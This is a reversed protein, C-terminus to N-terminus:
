AKVGKIWKGIKAKQTQADSVYNAVGYGVTKGDLYTQTVIPRNSLNNITKLYESNDTSDLSSLISSGIEVLSKLENVVSKSNQESDLNASISMAQRQAFMDNITSFGAQVKSLDLVPTITPSDYDSNLIDPIASLPDAIASLATETMSIGSKEVRDSFDSIGKALGLDIYKGSEMMVKSPSEIGATTNVASMVDKTLSTAAIIATTKSDTIGKALGSVLYVGANKMAEYKDRIKNVVTNALLNTLIKLAAKATEDNLGATFKNTCAIGADKFKTLNDDTSFEIIATTILSNVAEKTSDESNTFEDLFATIANAAATQMSTVFSEVGTADVASTSSVWETLKGLADVTSGVASSDVAALNQLLNPLRSAQNIVLMITSLSEEDVGGLDTLATKMSSAFTTMNTSVAPVDGIENVIKAAEALTSIHDALKGSASLKTTDIGEVKSYYSNVGDGLKTMNDKFSDMSELASVSGIYEKNTDVTQLIGIIANISDANEVEGITSTATYFATLGEGFPKMKEGFKDINDFNGGFWGGDISTIHEGIDILPGLSSCVASIKWPQEIGSVATAFQSVGTGFSQLQDAFNDLPWLGGSFVDLFGGNGTIDKTADVLPSIVDRVINAVKKHGTVGELESCFNKIGTGFGVLQTGFADIDNNGAFFGVVGGSNPLSNAMDVIPTIFDPISKIFTLDEESLPEADEGSPLLNDRLEVLKDGFGAMKSGFSELDATGIIDQLVGGEKPLSNSLDVMPTVYEPIKKIFELDADTLPNADEGSPLLKDRLEVLKDGFGAMKSGFSELDATGIVKQLFGGTKPVKNAFDALAASVDALKNIRTIEDDTLDATGNLLNSCIEGISKTFTKIEEAFNAIGGGLFKSIGDIFSAGTLATLMGTIINVKDLASDPILQMVTVFPILKTAFNSLNEAIAPAHSSIGEGISGIFNGIAMGIGGLLTSFIELGKTLADSFGGNTAGDILNAIAGIGAFLGTMIGVVEAMAVGLAGGISMISKASVNLESMVAIAATLALLIETMGTCVKLMETGNTPIMGILAGLAAMAAVLGILIAMKAIASKNINKVYKTCVALAAICLIMSDMALVAPYIQNPDMQSMIIVIGALVVLMISIALITKYAYTVKSSAAIIIAMMGMLITVVVTGQTATEPGITGLIMVAGAILLLAIGVGVLLGISKQANKGVAISAIFLAIIDIMLAQLIVVGRVAKEPDMNGLIMVATAMLILATGVGTMLAASSKARKGALNAFIILKLLKAMMSTMVEVAVVLREPDLMTLMQISLAILLLSAGFSILVSAQNSAGAPLISMVAYVALLEIILITIAAIGQGLSEADMSGLVKLSIAMLLLAAGFAILADATAYLGGIQKSMLKSVILLAVIMAAFVILDGVVNDLSDVIKLAISIILLSAAFSLLVSQLKIIEGITANSKEAIQSFAYVMAILIGSIVGLVGVANWVKDADLFSLVVICAILEVIADAVVKFSRAKINTAVAKEVSAFGGLVNSISAKFGHLADVINKITNALNTLGKFALFGGILIMAGGLFEKLYGLIVPFVDGMTSKADDMGDTFNSFSDKISTFFGSVSSTDIAEVSPLFEKIKDFLDTFFDIVKQLMPHEAVFNAIVDKIDEFTDAFAQGVPALATKVSDFLTGLVDEVFYRITQIINDFSVGNLEQVHGLFMGFSDLVPAFADGINGFVACFADGFRQVITQTEELNWLYKVGDVIWGFFTKIAGIIVSFVKGITSFVEWVKNQKKLSDTTKDIADKISKSDGNAFDILAVITDKVLEFVTSLVDIVPELVATAGDLLTEWVGSQKILDDFKTILDGIGGTIEFIGGAAPIMASVLRGILKVVFKIPQILIDIVAFLGRFTSRLNEATEDSIVLKETFSHFSNIIQYLTESATKPFIDNWANKISTFITSLSKWINQFSEIILERGSKRTMQSIYEEISMGNAEAQERLIKLAEVQDATYDINQKVADSLKLQSYWYYDSAEGGLVLYDVYSQITDRDYGAANLADVREQGNGWNGRWVDKAIDSVEQFTMGCNFTAESLDDVSTQATELGKELNSIVEDLIDNTLLGNQLINQFNEEASIMDDYAVGHKKATELIEDQFTSLTKKAEETNGALEAQQEGIENLADCVLSSTLWGDNLSDNFDNNIDVLRSGTNYLGDENKELIGAAEAAAILKTKLTDTAYGTEEIVKWVDYNVVSSEATLAADYAKHFNESVITSAKGLAGELLNNRADAAKQIIDGFVNSMGTFLEKAEEFDGIIISFTQAWGSGAAEKLTDILQTFTKVDSAAAYARKGIDTTADAYDNLTEVLVDTTLWQDQLTENYNSLASMTHGELTTYTGDAAKTLTGLEVATDILQQKFEKTAMNANEISKWDILKVYGASLAQSFNYMARSAENANAGSLAAENSIGKIAAVAKDLSVGMNTFKGINSTMDSFSYITQDAYTNLENLYKMVTELSEGTGAMITQVSNMELEYEGFGQKIPDITLSSVLQKGATIASNTIRQLATTAIVGMTTFRSAIMDVNDAMNSMSFSNVSKGLNKLGEGCSEFNLKQKLKEITNMSEKAGSEFQENKFQMEVVRKDIETSM